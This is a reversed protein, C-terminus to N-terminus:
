RVSSVRGPAAKPDFPHRDFPYISRIRQVYALTEAFPPIGRYRDVTGEGANYAALVLSVDGRFYALLWRLYAMGGKVNELPDLPNQVAFREATEPILQMLGLANKPSKANPDFGSEQQIVALVLRPDVRYQISLKMIGSLLNRREESAMPKRFEAPIGLQIPRVLPTNSQNTQSATKQGQQKSQDNVALRNTESTILSNCPSVKEETSRVMNALRQAMPNGANAANRFLTAAVGDDRPVGRGNAYMWGLRIMADSSGLRIARCYAVQAGKPDKTLGEGHELRAGEELLLTIQRDTLSLDLNESLGPGPRSELSLNPSLRSEQSIQAQALGIMLYLVGGVLLGKTMKPPLKTADDFGLQLKSRKNM